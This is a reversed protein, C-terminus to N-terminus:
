SDGTRLRYTAGYYTAMCDICTVEHDIVDVAEVALGKADCCECDQDGTLAMLAIYDYATYGVPPKFDQSM